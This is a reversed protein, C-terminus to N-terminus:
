ACFFPRNEWLLLGKKTARKGKAVPWFTQKRVASSLRPFSSRRYHAGKRLKLFFRQRVAVLSPSTHSITGVSSRRGLCGRAEVTVTLGRRRHQGQCVRARDSGM